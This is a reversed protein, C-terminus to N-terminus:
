ALRIYTFWSISFLLLLLLIFSSYFTLVRCVLRNILTLHSVVFVTIYIYIWTGSHTQTATHPQTHNHMYFSFWVVSVFHNTIAYSICCSKAWVIRFSFFTQRLFVQISSNSENYKTKKKKPEKTKTWTNVWILDVM